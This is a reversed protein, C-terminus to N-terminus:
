RHQVPAVVFGALPELSCGRDTVATEDPRCHHSIMSLKQLARAALAFCGLQQPLGSVGPVDVCGALDQIALAVAILCLLQQPTCQFRAVKTGFRLQDLSEFTGPPGLFCLLQTFEPDFRSTRGGFQPSARQVLCGFRTRPTMQM